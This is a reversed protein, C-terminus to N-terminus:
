RTVSGGLSEIRGELGRLKARCARMDCVLGFTVARHTKRHEPVRNRVERIALVVAYRTAEDVPRLAGSHLMFVSAVDGAEDLVPDTVILAGPRMRERVSRWIHAYDDFCALGLASWPIIDIDDFADNCVADTQQAMTLHVNGRDQGRVTEDRLSPLGDWAIAIDQYGDAMYPQATGVSVLGAQLIAPMMPGYDVNEVTPRLHRLCTAASLGSRCVPCGMQARPTNSAVRMINKVCRECCVCTCTGCPVIKAEEFNDYCIHCEYTPPQPRPQPQPQPPPYAAAAATRGAITSSVLRRLEARRDYTAQSERVYQTTDIGLLADCDTCMDGLARRVEDSGCEFHDMFSFLLAPHFTTGVFATTEILRPRINAPFRNVEQRLFSRSPRLQDSAMTRRAFPPAAINSLAVMGSADIIVHGVTHRDYNVTLPHPTVPMTVVIVAEVM